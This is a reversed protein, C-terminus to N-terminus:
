KGRVQLAGVGAMIAGVWYVLAGIITTADADFIDARLEEILDYAGLLGLIGAAVFLLSTYPVPDPGSGKHHTWAGGVIVVALAFQLYGTSYEDILLDFLLWGVLVLAAGLVALREGGGLKAFTASVENALNREPDPAGGSAPENSDTM